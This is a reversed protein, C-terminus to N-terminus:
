RLRFTGMVPFHDSEQVERVVRYQQVVWSRDPLIWDIIRRPGESPYTFDHWTAQGRAPRRQFGGFSELLEIANQGSPTTKSMPFGPPTSNFSGLVLMPLRSSRQIGVMEGAARVRIEESREDLHVVMVRIEQDEGMRLTALMGDLNGSKVKEWNRYPQFEIREADVIPFRSLLANGHLVRRFFPVGADVNSQRVIYPFGAAAAIVAAQDMGESWWCDFDVAQLAIVDLGMTGLHEGIRGLREVMGDVRRGSSAEQDSRPGLGHGINYTVVRLSEPAKSPPSIENEPVEISIARAKETIRLFLLGLIFAFGVSFLAVVVRGTFFRIVRLARGTLPSRM